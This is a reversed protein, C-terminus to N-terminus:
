KLSAPVDHNFIQRTSKNVQYLSDMTCWIYWPVTDAGVPWIRFRRIAVEASVALDRKWSPVSDVHDKKLYNCVEMRHMVAVSLIMSRKICDSRQYFMESAM